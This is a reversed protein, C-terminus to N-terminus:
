RTMLITVVFKALAMGALQNVASFGNLGDGSWSKLDLFRSTKSMELLAFGHFDDAHNATDDHHHDHRTVESHSLPWSAVAVTIARDGDGKGIDGFRLFPRIPFGVDSYIGGSVGV